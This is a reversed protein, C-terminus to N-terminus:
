RKPNRNVRGQGPGNQLRKRRQQELFEQLRENGSIPLETEYADFTTEVARLRDELEIDDAETAVAQILSLVDERSWKQGSKPVLKPQPAVFSAKALARSM